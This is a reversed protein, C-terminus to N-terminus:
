SLHHIASSGPVKPEKQNVTLYIQLPLANRQHCAADRIPYVECALRCRACVQQYTGPLGPHYVSNLVNRHLEGFLNPSFDKILKLSLVLIRSEIMLLDSIRDLKDVLM